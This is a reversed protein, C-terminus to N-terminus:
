SYKPSPGYRNPGDGSDECLYMLLLIGGVLPILSTFYHWGSRNTDHLRRVMVALGPLILPLVFLYSVVMAVRIADGMAATEAETPTNTAPMTIIVALFFACITVVLSIINTLLPFWWYESRRARGSFNAYQTLASRVAQPFSMRARAPRATRGTWQEGDWYRKVGDPHTHWGAVPSLSLDAPRPQGAAPVPRPSREPLPAVEYNVPGGGSQLHQRVVDWADNVQAMKSVAAPRLSRRVREPDLRIAQADFVKGAEDLSSEPKLRLVAYATTVDM